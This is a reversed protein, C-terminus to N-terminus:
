PWLMRLLMTPDNTTMERVTLEERAQKQEDYTVTTSLIEVNVTTVREEFFMKDITDKTGMPNNALNQRDKVNAVM